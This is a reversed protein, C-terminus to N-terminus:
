QRCSAEELECLDDRNAAVEQHFLKMGGVAQTYAGKCIGLATHVQKIHSM